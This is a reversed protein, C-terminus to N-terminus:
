YEARQVRAWAAGILGVLWLALLVSSAALSLTPDAASGAERDIVVGAVVPFFGKALDESVYEFILGTILLSSLNLVISVAIAVGNSNLFTGIALSLVGFVWAGVWIMWFLDFWMEGDVPQGDPAILVTILTLAIAPLTFLAITAFLVIPRVVVLQWRPRGTLVLYRMTGQSSDYSGATAGVVIAALVAVFFTIGTGTDLVGWKTDNDSLIAWVLHGVAFLSVFAMAGYFSGKRGVQRRLEAPLLGIV